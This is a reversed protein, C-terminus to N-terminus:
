DNREILTCKKIKAEGIIGKLRVIIPRKKNM